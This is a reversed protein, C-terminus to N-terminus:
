CCGKQITPDPIPSPLIKTGIPEIDVRSEYLQKAVTEFIEKINIDKRASSESSKSDSYIPLYMIM